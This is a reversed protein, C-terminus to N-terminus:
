RSQRWKVVYADDLAWLQSVRKARPGTVTATVPGKGKRCKMGRGNGPKGEGEWRENASKVQSNINKSYFSCMQPYKQSTPKRRRAMKEEKQM